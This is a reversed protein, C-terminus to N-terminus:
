GPRTAKLSQPGRIAQREPGNRRAQKRKNSERLAAYERAEFGRVIEGMLQKDEETNLEASNIISMESFRPEANTDCQKWVKGDVIINIRDYDKTKQWSVSFRGFEIKSPILKKLTIYFDNFTWDKLLEYLETREEAKRKECSETDEYWRCGAGTPAPARHSHDVHVLPGQHALLAEFRQANM